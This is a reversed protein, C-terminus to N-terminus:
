LQSQITQVHQDFEKEFIQRTLSTTVTDCDESYCCKVSVYHHNVKFGANKNTQKNTSTKWFWSVDVTPPVTDKTVASLNWKSLCGLLYLLKIVYVFRNSSYATARVVHSNNCTPSRQMWKNWFITEVCCNCPAQLSDEDRNIKWNLLQLQLLWTFLVNRNLDSNWFFHPLNKYQLFVDAISIESKGGM